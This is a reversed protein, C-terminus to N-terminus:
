DWYLESTIQCIYIMNIADGGPDFKGGLIIHMFLGCNVLRAREFIEDDQAKRLAEDAPPPNSFNGRENINL